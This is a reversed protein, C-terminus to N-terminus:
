NHEPSSIQPIWLGPGYSKLSCAIVILIKKEWIDKMSQSTNLQHHHYEHWVCLLFPIMFINSHAFIFYLVKSWLRRISLFRLAITYARSLTTPNKQFVTLGAGNPYGTELMDGGWVQEEKSGGGGAREPLQRRCRTNGLSTGCGIYVALVMKRRPLIVPWGWLCMLM